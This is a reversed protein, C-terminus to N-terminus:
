TVIAMPILSHSWLTPWLYTWQNSDSYELFTNKTKCSSGKMSGRNVSLGSVRISTQSLTGGSLWNDQAPSLNTDTRCCNTFHPQLVFDTVDRIEEVKGVSPWCCTLQGRRAWLSLPTVPSCLFVKKPFIIPKPLGSECKNGNIVHHLLFAFWGPIGCDFRYNKRQM